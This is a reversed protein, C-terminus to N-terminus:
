PLRRWAFPYRSRRATARIDLGDTGLELRLAGDIRTDLIRAGARRWRELATARSGSATGGSAIALRAGSAEIWQRSSALASAHRSLLVADSALAAAGLRAVLGREAAADLDGGILVAHGGAVIRLVCYEGGRGATWTEVRVGDTTFASDRCPRAPLSAARWGGGVRLDAFGREEALLAVGAARDPDLSPLWVRDIARLRAGLAPLVATRTRAGDSGWSDGTDYLLLRSATEILVSQGRGADLVEIRARGDPPVTSTPFLLPWSAVLGTLRLSLPWRRLLLAGAVLAMVYWWGPPTVRWLAHDVDAAAVLLPWSREYLWAAGHFCAAALPPSVLSTVAGALIVPVFVFSILPIAVLNVSLGALSVGGFVAVTLPALLTMVGIQLRLATRGRSWWTPPAHVVAGQGLFLLVGVAVFSLWFGSALPALPDLLLVGILSLSWVRAAGVVRAALRSVVFIALMLWTRQTPVSFGALLAYAGAAALGAVAAFTERDLFSAPLLRWGSRAVAFALVAFLTVHMGSIAVLHTTGTANFVRWQDRSVGDTVGVALAALLAAADPDAVADGIRLAIRARTTNVSDPALALRENLAAPLVRGALHVRDRLAIRELDPGSFNHTDGLPALRVLLRWREGARPAFPADRWALRARRPRADVAGELVTVDADFRLETGARAPTDVIRAELLVRADAQAPTVVRGSWSAVTGGAMAAGLTFAALARVAPRGRAMSAAVAVVVAAALLWAPTPPRAMGLGALVGALLALGGIV